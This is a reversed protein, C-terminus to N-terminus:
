KSIEEYSAMVKYKHWYLCSPYVAVFGSKGWRCVADLARNFINGSEMEDYYAQFECYVRAAVWKTVVPTSDIRCLYDHIGGAEPNSGRLLPISELDFVFGHPIKSWCKLIASYFQFSQTLRVYRPDGPIIEIKM